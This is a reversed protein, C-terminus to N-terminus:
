LLFANLSFSVTDEIPVCTDIRHQYYLDIYGVDLRKLSDECCERVYEPTGNVSFQMGDSSIIGVKTALQVRERPLEKLAQPIIFFADIIVDFTSFTSKVETYIM